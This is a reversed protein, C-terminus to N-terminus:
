WVLITIYVIWCALGVGLAMNALILALRSYQQAATSNGSDNADQTQISYVLAAIGLPLFCCLMTFISYSVYDPARTSQVTSIFVAQSPRLVPGQNAEAAPPGYYPQHEPPMPLATEYYMPLAPVTPLKWPDLDGYPQNESYPPPSLSAPDNGEMNEYNPNDM